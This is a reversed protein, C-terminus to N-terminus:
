YDEDNSANASVARVSPLDQWKLPTSKPPPQEVIALISGQPLLYDLLAITIDKSPLHPELRLRAIIKHHVGTSDAIARASKHKHESNNVLAHLVDDIWFSKPLPTYKLPTTM